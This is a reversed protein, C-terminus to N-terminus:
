NKSGHFAQGITKPGGVSASHLFHKECIRVYFFNRMKQGNMVAQKGNCGDHDTRAKDKQVNSSLYPSSGSQPFFLRIVTSLPAKNMWPHDGQKTSINPAMQDPILVTKKRRTAKDPCRHGTIAPAHPNALRDVPAVSAAKIM